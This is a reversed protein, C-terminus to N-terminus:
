NPDVDWRYGGNSRRVLPHVAVAAAVPVPAYLHPFLQGTGHSDEDIVPAALAARAFEVAVPDPLDPYFRDATGLVQDAYSLHVFGEDSLSPPRYLDAAALASWVGASLIHFLRDADRPVALAADPRETGPVGAGTVGGGPV